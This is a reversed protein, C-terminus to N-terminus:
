FEVVVCGCNILKNIQCINRPSNRYGKRYPAYEFLSFLFEARDLIAVAIFGGYQLGDKKHGLEL